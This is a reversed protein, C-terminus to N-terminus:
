RGGGTPQPPIPVPKVQVDLDLVKGSPTDKIARRLTEILDSIQRGNRAADPMSRTTRRELDVLVDLTPALPQLATVLKALDPGTLNKLADITATQAQPYGPADPGPWDWLLRLASLLDDTSAGIGQLANALIPLTQATPVTQTEANVQAVAGLARVLPLFGKTATDSQRLLESIYPRLATSEVDALSRLLGSMTSDTPATAPLVKAGDRLPSGSSSPTVQISTIGFLNNPAFDAILGDTLGKSKDPDLDMGIGLRGSGQQNIESVKGIQVGNMEIATGTNIGPAVAATLLTIRLPAPRVLATIGWALLAVVLVVALTIVGRRVLEKPEVTMGPVSSISAM